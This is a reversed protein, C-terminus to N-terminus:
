NCLYTLTGKVKVSVTKRGEKKKECSIKTFHEQGLTNLKPSHHQSICQKRSISKMRRKLEGYARPCSKIGPLTKSFTKSYLGENAIASDTGVFSIISVVLATAFVGAVKKSGRYPKRKISATEVSM